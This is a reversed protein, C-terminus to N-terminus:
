ARAVQVMLSLISWRRATPKSSVRIQLWEFVLIAHSFLDPVRPPNQTGAGGPTVAGFGVTGSRRLHRLRM